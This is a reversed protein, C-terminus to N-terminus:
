RFILELTRLYRSHFPIFKEKIPSEKYITVATSKPIKEFLSTNGTITKVADEHSIRFPLGRFNTNTAFNRSLNLFIRNRFCFNSSKHFLSISAITLPHSQVSFSKAINVRLMSECIKLIIM